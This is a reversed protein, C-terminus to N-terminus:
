YGNALVDALTRDIRAFAVEQQHQDQWDFGEAHCAVRFLGPTSFVPELVGDIMRAPMSADAHEDLAEGVHELIKGRVEEDTLGDKRYKHVLLGVVWRIKDPVEDTPRNKFLRKPPKVTL